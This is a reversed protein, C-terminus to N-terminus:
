RHCSNTLLRANSGLINIFVVNSNRILERTSKLKISSKLKHTNFNPNERKVLMQKTNTFNKELKFFKDNGATNGSKATELLHGGFNPTGFILLSEGYPQEEPTM